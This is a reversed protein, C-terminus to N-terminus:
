EFIIGTLSATIQFSVLSDGVTVTIERDDKTDPQSLTQYIATSAGWNDAPTFLVDVTGQRDDPTDFGDDWEEGCSLDCEFGHVTLRLDETATVRAEACVTLPDTMESKAWSGAASYYLFPEETFDTNCFGLTDSLPITPSFTDKLFGGGPNRSFCVELTRFIPSPQGAWQATATVSSVQSIAQLSSAPITIHFRPPGNQVAITVGSISGLTTATSSSAILQANAQVFADTATAGAPVPPLPVDIIMPEDDGLIDTFKHRYPVYAGADPSLSVLNVFSSCDFGLHDTAIDIANGIDVNADLDHTLIKANTGQAGGPLYPDAPQFWVPSASPFTTVGNSTEGHSADRALVTLTNQHVVAMADPPHIETHWPPHGCDFIARGHVAVHDGAVALANIPAKHADDQEWEVEVTGGSVVNEDAMMKQWPLDPAIDMNWDHQVTTRESVKGHTHGFPNDVAAIHARVVTGTLTRPKEAKFGCDQEGGPDDDCAPTTGTGLPCVQQGTQPNTTCLGQAKSPNVRPDNGDTYLGAWQPFIKEIDAYVTAKSCQGPNIALGNPLAAPSGGPDSHTQWTNTTLATSAPPVFDLNWLSGDGLVSWLRLNGGSVRQGAVGASLSLNALPPQAIEQVSSWALSLTDRLSQTLTTTGFNECHTGSGSTICIRAPITESQVLVRDAYLMWDDPSSHALLILRNGLTLLQPDGGVHVFNTSGDTASPPKPQPKIEITKWQRGEPTDLSLLMKTADSSSQVMLVSGRSQADAWALVAPTGQTNDQIDQWASFSSFQIPLSVTGGAILTGIAITNSGGGALNSTVEQMFLRHRADVVYIQVTRTTGSLWTVASPSATGNWGLDPFRYVAPAQQGNPLLFEMQKGSGEGIRGHHRVWGFGTRGTQQYENLRGLSDVAYIVMTEQAGDTDVIVAPSQVIVPRVGASARSVSNLLNTVYQTAPPFPTISVAPPHPPTLTTNRIQQFSVGSITAPGDTVPPPPGLDIWAPSIQQAPNGDVDLEYLHGNLGRAFLWRQFLSGATTVAIAPTGTVLTGPPAGYDLWLFEHAASSPNQRREVVHGLVSIAFTGGSGVTGSTNPGPTPIPTGKLLGVPGSTVTVGYLKSAPPPTKFSNRALIIWWNNPSGIQNPHLRGDAQGGFIGGTGSGRFWAAYPSAAQILANDSTRGPFGDHWFGALLDIVGDGDIDDAALEHRAVAVDITGVQVAPQFAGQGAGKVAFLAGSNGLIWLDPNLDNDFDAATLAGWNPGTTKMLAAPLPVGARNSSSFLSSAQGGGNLYVFVQSSSSAQANAAFVALDLKGDGNFDALAKGALDGGAPVGSDWIQRTFSGHGNNIYGVIALTPSFTGQTFGAFSMVIDIDGDGDIDGCAMPGPRGAPPSQDITQTQTGALAPTQIDYRPIWAVKGNPNAFVVDSTGNGDVDAVCIATTGTLASITTSAAPGWGGGFVSLRGMNGGVPDLTFVEKPPAGAIAPIPPPLSTNDPGIFRLEDVIFAGTNSSPVNLVVTFFLDSYNATGLQAVLNDPVTFRLTSFQGLALGTLEVAGLYVNYAGITPSEVYLQAQGYWSPSDTALSTPLTVDFAMRSTVNQLTTLRRSAIPTFGKAGTLLLAASGGTRTTSTGISGAAKLTWDAAPSDMKMVEDALAPGDATESAAGNNGLQLNDFRATGDGGPLNLVLTVELDDLPDSGSLQTQLAAPLALSITNWKNAPLGQLNVQNVWARSVGRSPASLFAAVAGAWTPNVSVPLWVDVAINLPVPTVRGVNVATFEVYGGGDFRLSKAGQDHTTTDYVVQGVSATWGVGEFGRVDVPSVV